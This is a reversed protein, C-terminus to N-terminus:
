SNWSMASAADPAPRGGPALKHEIAYRVLDAVNGARMKRLLRTKHTSITKNSLSLASAIQSGTRGQVLMEFVSFERTSLVTHPTGGGQGSRWQVAVQEAVEPSLYQGGMAVRRIAEVLSQTTSVKTIYGAAGLGLARMAYEPHRNMSLVLIPLHPRIAAVHRLPEVSGSGSISLDVLAIDIRLDTRLIDYLKTCDAVEAVVEFERSKELLARLGERFLLWDDAILLRIM